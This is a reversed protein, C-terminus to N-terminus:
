SAHALTPDRGAAIRIIKVVVHVVLNRTDDRSSADVLASFGQNTRTFSHLYNIPPIDNWDADQEGVRPASHQIRRLTAELIDGVSKTDISTRRTMRILPPFCGPTLSTDCLTVTEPAIPLRVIGILRTVVNDPLAAINRDGTGAFELIPVLDGGGHAIALRPGQDYGSRKTEELHEFILQLVDNCFPMHEGSAQPRTGLYRLTLLMQRVTIYGVGLLDAKPQYSWTRFDYARLLEARDLGLIQQLLIPALSSFARIASIRTQLLLDESLNSRIRLIFALSGLPGMRLDDPRIVVSSNPSIPFTFNYKHHEPSDNLPHHTSISYPPNLIDCCAATRIADMLGVLSNAELTIESYLHFRLLQSVRALTRSYCARLMALRYDLSSNPDTSPMDIVHTNPGVTALPDLNLLEPKPRQDPISSKDEALDLGTLNLLDLEAALLSAHTNADLPSASDTWINEIIALPKFPSIPLKVMEASMRIHTMMSSVATAYRAVHAGGNTALTRPNTMIREFRGLVAHLLSVMTTQKDLQMPIDDSPSNSSSSGGREFGNNEFRAKDTHGRLGALAQYSSDVVAPDRANNILWLLAQLDKHSNQREKRTTPLQDIVRVIVAHLYRSLETVFPCFEHIAGLVVTVVYFLLTAGVIGAIVGAIVADMVWLYIVLGVSFLLLALHLISPLLAIIHLAWWRELGELRSQRLLAHSHAPRPRSALFAILWEKGLMAVLAASLSLCLSTFWIGNVWRASSSPTFDPLGVLVESNTPSPLGLEMRQQSQAVLLLLAASADTPDQQLLSKSEILFATLIASFLTAFLLLMDLSAHRGKVLEQDHENAEELYLNWITADHALEKGLKDTAKQGYARPIGSDRPPRNNPVGHSNQTSDDDTLQRPSVYTQDTFRFAGLKVEPQIDDATVTLPSVFKQTMM